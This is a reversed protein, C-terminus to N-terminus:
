IVVTQWVWSTDGGLLDLEWETALVRRTGGADSDVYAYVDFHGAPPFPGTTVQIEEAVRRDHAVRRDGLEELVAQSAAEYRFVRTWTLGREDISLPGDSQNLVTYMGDGEVDQEGGPRNTWLFVWRNPTRWQDAVITRDEGVITAVDDASFTFDIPRVSPEIYRECRYLGNEDCWVAQYNIAALLDNVIRLWTVPTSTQDPDLSSAVLSWTRTAPLTYDAAATEIQVGSLGADSFVDLLAQRYTTGSTVSYDEGVERDLLALRDQGSAEFIPPDVGVRKEPTSLVFVGTNWREDGILVYPRVLQAGWQLERSLVLQCTGHIKAFCQRTVKGDLFDDSIDETVNLDLDLVECGAAVELTPATLIAAQDDTLVQM